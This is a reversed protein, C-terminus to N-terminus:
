EFGQIRSDKKCKQEEAKQVKPRESKEEKPKQVKEGPGKDGQARRLTESNKSSEKVRESKQQESM